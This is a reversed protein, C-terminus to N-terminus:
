MTQNLANQKKPTCNGANTSYQISKDITGFNIKANSPAKM